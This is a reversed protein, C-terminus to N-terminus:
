YVCTRVCVRLCARVCAYIRIKSWETLELLMVPTVSGCGGDLCLRCDTLAARHSGKFEFCAYM